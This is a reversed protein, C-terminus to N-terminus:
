HTVRICLLGVRHQPQPNMCSHSFSNMLGYLESNNTSKFMCLRQLQKLITAMIDTFFSSEGKTRLHTMQTSPNEKNRRTIKLMQLTALLWPCGGVRYLLFLLLHPFPLYLYNSHDFLPVLPTLLTPTEGRGPSRQSCPFSSKGEATGPDGQRNSSGSKKITFSIATWKLHM